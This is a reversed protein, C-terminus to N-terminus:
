YLRFRLGNATHLCFSYELHWDQYQPKRVVLRHIDASLLARAARAAAVSAVISLGVACYM